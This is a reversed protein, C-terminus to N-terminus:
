LNWRGAAAAEAFALADEFDGEHEHIAAAGYGHPANHISGNELLRVIGAQKGSGTKPGIEAILTSSKVGDATLAFLDFQHGVGVDYTISRGTKDAHGETYLKANWTGKVLGATASMAPMLNEAFQPSGLEGLDRALETLQSVDSV